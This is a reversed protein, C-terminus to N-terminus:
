LCDKVDLLVGETLGTPTNLAFRMFDNVVSSDPGTVADQTRGARSTQQKVPSSPEAAAAMVAIGQSASTVAHATAPPHASRKGANDVPVTSEHKASCAGETGHLLMCAIQMLACSDDGM